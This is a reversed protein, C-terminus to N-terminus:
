QATQGPMAKKFVAVLTAGKQASAFLSHSGALLSVLAILGARLLRFPLLWAPAKHCSALLRESMLTNFFADLPLQRAWHLALGHAAACRALTSLSFHNVHRPVDLAIWHRRYFKADVSAINPVAIILVGDEQLLRALHRLAEHPHYVHELVHWMTIVAYQVAESRVDLVSGTQISLQLQGRGWEAAAADRELGRVQWGAARMVALFEGTGCGVDLLDGAAHFRALLNKKWRLNVRRLAAYLKEILSRPAATSSFPLYEAHQYYRGSDVERPRPNLYIM